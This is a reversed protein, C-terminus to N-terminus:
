IHILSLELSSLIKNNRRFSYLMQEIYSTTDLFKQEEYRNEALAIVIQPTFYLCAAAIIISPIIKLQFALILVVIGVVAIGFIQFLKQRNFNKDYKALKATIKNSQKKYYEDEESTYQEDYFVVNKQSSLATDNNGNNKTKNKRKSQKSSSNNELESPGGYPNDEISSKIKERPM